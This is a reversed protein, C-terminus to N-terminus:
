IRFSFNYRILMNYIMVLSKHHRLFEFLVVARGEALEPMAPDGGNLRVETAGDTDRVDHDHGMRGLDNWNLGLSAGDGIAPQDTLLYARVLDLPM